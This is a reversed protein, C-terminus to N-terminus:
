QGTTYQHSIQVALTRALTGNDTQPTSGNVTGSGLTVNRCLVIRVTNKPMLPQGFLVVSNYLRILKVGSKNSAAEMM